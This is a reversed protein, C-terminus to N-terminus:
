SESHIETDIPIEFYCVLAHYASWTDHCCYSPHLFSTYYRPLLVPLVMSCSGSTLWRTVGILQLHPSPHYRHVCPHHIDRPTSTLLVSRTGSKNHLERLLTRLAAITNQSQLPSTFQIVVICANICHRLRTIQVLFVIYLCVPPTVSTRYGV